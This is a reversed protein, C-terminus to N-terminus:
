GALLRGAARHDHGLLRRHHRHQLGATRLLSPRHRHTLHAALPPSPSRRAPRRRVLHPPSSTQTPPPSSTCHRTLQCAPTPPSAHCALLIGAHRHGSCPACEEVGAAREGDHRDVSDCLGVMLNDAPRCCADPSPPLFSCIPPAWVLSVPDAPMPRVLSLKPAAGVLQALVAAWAPQCSERRPGPLGGRRRAAHAGDRHPQLRHHPRPGKGGQEQWAALKSGFDM